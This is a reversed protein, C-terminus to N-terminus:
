LGPFTRKGSIIFGPNCGFKCTDGVKAKSCSGEAYGNFPPNVAPCSDVIPLGTNPPPTQGPRLPLCRPFLPDGKNRSWRGTPLCTLTTDGILYFGLSCQIRCVENYNGSCTSLFYSSVPPIMPGCPGTVINCAATANWTGLETCFVRTVIPKGKGDLIPLGNQGNCTYGCYGGAVTLCPLSIQGNPPPELAPCQKARNLCMVETGSWTGDSKCVKFCDGIVDWGQPCRVYCTDGVTNNDCKLLSGYPPAIM